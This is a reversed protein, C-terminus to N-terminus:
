PWPSETAGINKAPIVLDRADIVGNKRADGGLLKVTPLVINQNVVVVTRTATLFGDKEVVVTYTGLSLQVQFSGDKPDSFVQTPAGGSSFSVRAGTIPDPMGQFLVTGSVIPQSVAIVFEFAGIDCQTGQPRTVGRQDTSPCLADDGADIAPSGPPLLAHTEIPGGNDALPGLKPDIPSASTGVLDGAAPTFSCGSNDGILNHGQSTLSGSCDAGTTTATNGAVITNTVDTSGINDNRIGGGGLSGSAANGNFSNNTLTLSGSNDVGGGFRATNGSVTTNRLTAASSAGNFIGGGDSTSSNNGSITSNTVTLTTNAGGGNVIGGGVNNATNNSISSNNITLTAGGANNIGGGKGSSGSAANRNVTSDIITLTGENYLGGGFAEAQNDSVTSNRLTVTGSQNHVGGGFRSATNNNVAVNTLSLTGENYIGAGNTGALNDTVASDSLTLTAGNFIGGGDTGTNGHRITMGSIGVDGSIIAFVHYGNTSGPKATHAQVITDGSGAGEVTLSKNILLEPENGGLTLTYTGAPVVVKDGSAAAAIAERVSCDALDCSGDNTDQTKNVTLTAAGTPKELEFAGIDSTTVGDADGDQPRNVGRQDTAPATSDDGADIAPSDKLLAHTKTPGGNDALPGLKPDIPSASTGVLDGTTTTFTCTSNNGILNHGQSTPSGACDPSKSAATNGAVITNTLTFTGAHANIGGGVDNATNASVTTNKLTLTGLNYIGSGNGTANGSVTSNIITLTFGFGNFIGGGAGGGGTVHTTNGNITTDTITATSSNHIGGGNQTSTTNGRVTSKTLTLTGGGFNYIGGGDAGATNGSITSSTITLKGDNSIGGGSGAVTSPAANASVTSSTLTLDGRNFIGGGQASSKGHRITVGSISAKAGSGIGFVRTNAVNPQTAAQIITDGSGAGEVAVNTNITLESSLAFTYVGAPVAVKDGSAAATIAERLSCDSTDYSGDNTDQTKNVTLTKPGGASVVTLNLQVNTGSAWTGTENALQGGVRFQVTDGAIGGEKVGTTEPIDGNVSLLGYLSDGGSTFTDGSGAVITGDILAEILTGDAVNQGDLKVTGFFASPQPPQASATVVILVSAVVAPIAVLPLLLKWKSAIRM